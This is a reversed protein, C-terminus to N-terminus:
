DLKENPKDAELMQECDATGCSCIWITKGTSIQVPGAPTDMISFEMTGERYQFRGHEDRLISSKKHEM